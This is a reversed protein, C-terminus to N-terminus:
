GQRIQSMRPSQLQLVLGLVIQGPLLWRRGLPQNSCFIISKSLITSFCLSWIASSDTRPNLRPTVSPRVMSRLRIMLSSSRCIQQSYVDSPEHSCELQQTNSLADFSTFASRFHPLCFYILYDLSVFSLDIGIAIDFAYPICAILDDLEELSVM